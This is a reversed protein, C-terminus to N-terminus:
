DTHGNLTLPVHMDWVGLLVSMGETSIVEADEPIGIAGIRGVEKIREGESIIVSNQIPTSGYGDILTGGVLAKIDQSVGISNFLMLFLATCLLPKLFKAASTLHSM